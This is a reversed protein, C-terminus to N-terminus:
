LLGPTSVQPDAQKKSLGKFSEGINLGSGKSLEALTFQTPKKAKKMAPRPNLKNLDATVHWKSM